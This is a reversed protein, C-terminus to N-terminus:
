GTRGASVASVGRGLTSTKGCYYRGPAAGGEGDGVLDGFLRFVAGDDEGHQGVGARVSEVARNSFM